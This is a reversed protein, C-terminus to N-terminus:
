KIKSRTTFSWTRSIDNGDVTSGKIKVTYKAGPELPAQPFIIVGGHLEMDNADRNVYCPVDAGDATTIAASQVSLQSATSGYFFLSIPYGVVHSAGPHIRLPDPFENDTWSLPVDSEGDAPYVTVGSVGTMGFELTARGGRGSYGFDPTGQQLFAIRHYPADFLETVMEIANVTSFGIDEYDGLAYGWALVRDQPSVGTFGALGSTEHHGYQKNRDMYSSHADAAAVLASNIVVDKLNCKRRFSNVADTADQEDDDYAPFDPKADPSVSYQWDKEYKAGDSFTLNIKCAYDGTPLPKSFHAVCIRNHEDYVIPREQGNVTLTITSIYTDPGLALPWTITPQSILVLGRPAPEFSEIHAAQTPLPSVILLAAALVTQGSIRRFMVTTKM